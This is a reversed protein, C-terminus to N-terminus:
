RRPGLSPIEDSPEPALAPRRQERTGGAARLAEEAPTLADQAPEPPQLEVRDGGAERLADDQVRVDM